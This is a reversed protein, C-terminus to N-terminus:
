HKNWYKEKENLEKALKLIKGNTDSVLSYVLIDSCNDQINNKRLVKGLLFGILISTFFIIVFYKINSKM